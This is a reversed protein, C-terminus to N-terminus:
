SAKSGLITRKCTSPHDLKHFGVMGIPVFFSDITLILAKKVTAWHCDVLPRAAELSSSEGRERLWLSERKNQGRAMAVAQQM